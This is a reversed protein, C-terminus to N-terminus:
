LLIFIIRLMDESRASTRTTGHERALPHNARDWHGATHTATARLHDGTGAGRGIGKGSGRGATGALGLADDDHPPCRGITPIQALRNIPLACLRTPTHRDDPRSWYCCPRHVDGTMAARADHRSFRTRSDFRVGDDLKWRRCAVTHGSRKNSRSKGTTSKPRGVREQVAVRTM